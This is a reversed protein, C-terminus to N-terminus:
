WSDDREHDPDPSLHTGGGPEGPVNPDRLDADSSADDEVLEMAAPERDILLWYGAAVLCLSGFLLDAPDRTSRYNLGFAVAAVLAFGGVLWRFGPPQTRLM